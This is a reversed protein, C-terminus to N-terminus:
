SSAKEILIEVVQWVLQNKYIAVSLDTDRDFNIAIILNGKKVLEESEGLNKGDVMYALIYEHERLDRVTIPVEYGNAGVVRLHDAGDLVDLARLLDYLDVGTYSERKADWPDYTKFSTAPLSKITALDLLIRGGHINRIVLDAATEDLNEPVVVKFEYNPKFNRACGSCFVCTAIISAVGLVSRVRTM